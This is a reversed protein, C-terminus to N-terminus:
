EDTHGAPRANKLGFFAPGSWRTGTILRAIESLSNFKGSEYEFGDVTVFVEHRKGHWERVIRSGAKIVPKAVKKQCTPSELSRAIRLLTSRTAPKLGGYAKEQIRYALFPILLERRLGAPAARGYVEKWLSLLQERSRKPLTAISQRIDKQM